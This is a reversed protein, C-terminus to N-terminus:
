MSECYILSVEEETTIPKPNGLLRAKSVRFANSALWPIDEETFGEDSLYVSLGIRDLLMEVQAACDESGKGGLFRSIVAYKEPAGEVSHRIVTPTLAALGRGHVINRLGSLPHELGHPAALSSVYFAMGVASAAATVADLAETDHIDDNAAVINDTLLRLCELSIAETVPSAGPSVYSEMSHCLADFTVPALVSRPMTEMLSPDVIACRPILCDDRIGRKDKTAPDTLIATGNSESGTGCTTPVAIIPLASYEQESFGKELFDEVRGPSCAMLAIGKACDIPSGGGLAVVAGCGESRALAAGDAVATTLPNASVSDFVCYGIHEDELQGLIRDLLGTKASSRGTVVLVKAGIKSVESGVTDAKGRGFVINAPVSWHFDKM